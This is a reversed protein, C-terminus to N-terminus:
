SCYYWMGEHTSTRDQLYRDSAHSTRWRKWDTTAWENPTKAVAGTLIFYALNLVPRTCKFGFHRPKCIALTQWRWYTSHWALLHTCQCDGVTKPKRLCAVPCPQPRVTNDGFLTSDVNSRSTMVERYSDGVKSSYWFAFQILAVNYHACKLILISYLRM